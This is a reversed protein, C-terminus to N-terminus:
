GSSGCTMRIHTCATTRGPISNPLPLTREKIQMAGSPPRPCEETGMATFNAGEASVFIVKKAQEKQGQVRGVSWAAMLAAAVGVLLLSRKM